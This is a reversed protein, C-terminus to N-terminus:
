KFTFIFSTSTSFYFEKQSDSNVKLLCLQMLFCLYKRKGNMYKCRMLNRWPRIRANNSQDSWLTELQTYQSLKLCRVCVHMQQLATVCPSVPSKKIQVSEARVCKHKITSQVCVYTREWRGIVCVHVRWLVFVFHRKKEGWLPLHCIQWCISDHQFILCNVQRGLNISKEM